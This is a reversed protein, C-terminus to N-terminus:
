EIFDITRIKLIKSILIIKEEIYVWILYFYSTKFSHSTDMNKKLLFNYKM